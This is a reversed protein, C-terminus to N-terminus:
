VGAGTPRPREAGAIARREPRCGGRAPGCIAAWSCGHDRLAFGDVIFRGLGCGRGHRGHHGPRQVAATRGAHGRCSGASWAASSRGERPGATAPEVLEAEVDRVAVHCQHSPRSWCSSPPPATAFGFRSSSSCSLTPRSPEAVGAVGVALVAAGRTAWGLRCPSSAPWYRRPASAVHEVLRVVIGSPGTWTGPDSFWALVAALADM